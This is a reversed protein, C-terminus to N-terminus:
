EVPFIRPVKHADSHDFTMAQQRRLETDNHLQKTKAGFNLVNDNELDIMQVILICVFCLRYAVLHSNPVPIGM